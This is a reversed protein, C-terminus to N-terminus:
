PRGMGQTSMKVMKTLVRKITPKHFHSKNLYALTDHSTRCQQQLGKRLSSDNLDLLIDQQQFFEHFTHLSGM